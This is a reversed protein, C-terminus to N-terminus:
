LGRAVLSFKESATKMNRLFFHASPFLSFSTESSFVSLTDVSYSNFSSRSTVKWKKEEKKRKREASTSSLFQPFFVKTVYNKLKEFAWFVFQKKESLIMKNDKKKM